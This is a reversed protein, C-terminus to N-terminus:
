RITFINTLTRATNEDKITVKLYNRESSTGNAGANEEGQSANFQVFKTQAAVVAYGTGFRAPSADLYNKLNPVVSASELITGAETWTVGGDTVAAGNTVPWAPESASSTGTQTSRYYHGNNYYPVVIDGTTYATSAKRIKGSNQWTVGGDTVTAGSTVPWTPESAGSTGATLCKYYYGNNTKPVVHAYLPYATQAKWLYRLNLANFRNYDAVINEMVKSLNSAQQLRWVPDSSHTLSVGFFSYIMAAAIAVIVLSVIYEILTFGGQSPSAYKKM